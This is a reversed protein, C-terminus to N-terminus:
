CISFMSTPGEIIVCTTNSRVNKNGESTLNYNGVVNLTHTPSSTGIGVSGSTSNVFLTTGNIIFNNNGLNINQNAGIYPIYTSNLYNQLNGTTINLAMQTDTWTSMNYDYASNITMNYAWIAYTSNFTSYINTSNLYNQLNGTTMNLAMQTDTWKSQNYMWTSINTNAVLLSGTINADGVINLTHTPSSTGIGVMGLDRNVFLVSNNVSFNGFVNMNDTTNIWGTSSQFVQRDSGNFNFKEDNVYLELYYFKGYQLILDNTGNGLMVDYKGDNVYNEFDTTSNYILNGGSYADYIVVSLNGNVNSTGQKVNGQLAMLDDVALAFNISLILAIMGFIILFIKRNIM